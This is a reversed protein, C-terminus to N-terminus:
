CCWPSRWPPGCASTSRSPAAWCRARAPHHRVPGDPLQREDPGAPPQAHGGSAVVGHQRQLDVLMFGAVGYAATLVSLSAIGPGRATLFLLPVLGAVTTALRLTRGYGVTRTIRNAFLSGALSGLSGIGLVLGLQGASLGLWRVTYLVFVTLMANQALNFTASQALLNRLVANGFVARLGEAISARVTPRQEAIDPEPERVKLSLLMAVSFVYSVADVALTIPATLAAILFGGLGPGVIMALSFSTQMRGNADPLQPREVVSPVFSLSGVDFLVTLTGLVLAVACLAWLTLGHFVALLPVLGICAARGINCAILM